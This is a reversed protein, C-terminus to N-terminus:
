LKTSDISNKLTSLYLEVADDGAVYFKYAGAVPAIFM